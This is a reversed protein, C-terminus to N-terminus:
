LALYGIGGFVVGVAAWQPATMREKLFAWALLITVMGFTSAAVSAFEPNPLTGAMLVLGLALADCAGMLLLYRWPMKPGIRPMGGLSLTATFLTVFAAIRTILVTTLAAGSQSAMHGLAFTAAFGFAALAVWALAAMRKGQPEAGEADSLFAIFAVGLVIALVACIQGPTPVQGQLAAWGISLIPFAGTVPAVLRVPGIAFANYLAYYGTAYIVGAACAFLGASVGLTQWDAVWLVVPLFFVTGSAIVTLLALPISVRVTVFRVFVDHVGWALAAVIGLFLSLMTTGIKTRAYKQPLNDRVDMVQKRHSTFDTNKRIFLTEACEIHM